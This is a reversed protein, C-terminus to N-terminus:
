EHDGGQWSCAVRAREGPVIRVEVHAGLTQVVRRLFSLSPEEEGSELRAISSLRTAARRALDEQTWGRLMRLRTVQYAPELRQLAARFQPERLQEREWDEFGCDPCRTM